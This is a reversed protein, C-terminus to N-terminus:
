DSDCSTHTVQVAVVGPAVTHDVFWAVAHMRIWGGTLARIRAAVPVPENRPMTAATIIAATVAPRDDPHIGSNQGTSFGHGIGDPPGGLWRLVYPAAPFRLDLLAIHTSGARANVDALIADALTSERPTSVEWGIGLIEASPTRVEISEVSVAVGDDRVVGLDASRVVHDARQDASGPAPPGSIWDVHKIALGLSPVRTFFDAPGHTSRDRYDESVGLLNMAALSLYLRPPGSEAPPIWVWTALDAACREVAGAEFGVVAAVAVGTSPHRVPQGVVDGAVAPIGSDLVDVAAREVDRFLAGRLKAANSLKGGTARREGVALVRLTGDAARAITWVRTDAEGM